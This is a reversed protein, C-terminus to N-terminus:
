NQVGFGSVKQVSVKFGLAGFVEVMLFLLEAVLRFNM